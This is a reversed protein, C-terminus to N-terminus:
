NTVEMDFDRVKQKNVLRPSYIHGANPSPDPQADPIIIFVRAKEPLRVGAPLRIEGNEITGELTIMSM